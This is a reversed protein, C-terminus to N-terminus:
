SLKEKKTKLSGFSTWFGLVRDSRAVDFRARKSVHM